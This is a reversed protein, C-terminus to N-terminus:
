SRNRPREFDHTNKHIWINFQVALGDAQMVPDAREVIERQFADRHLQVFAGQRVMKVDEAGAPEHVGCKLSM